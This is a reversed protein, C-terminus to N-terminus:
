CLSVNAVSADLCVWTSLFSTFIKTTTPMSLMLSHSLTKTTLLVRYFFSRGSPERHTQPTRSPVLFRRWPLLRGPQKRKVSGYLVTLRPHLCRSLNWPQSSVGKGLMQNVTFRDTIHKDIEENASTMQHSQSVIPLPTSRTSWIMGLFRGSDIKITRKEGVVRM